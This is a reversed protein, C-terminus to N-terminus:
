LSEIINNFQQGRAKYDTFMDMSACAPSFLVVDGQQSAEIGAKIIRTFDDGQVNEVSVLGAIKLADYIKKGTQGYTIIKKIKRTKLENALVTFDANKDYGGFYAVLPADFSKIAAIASTPNTSFSDNYYKVGSKDAIFEIHYPLGKFSKIAESILDLDQTFDWVACIAASINQLNHPGPLGVESVKIVEQGFAVISDDGFSVDADSGYSYKTNAPSVLALQASVPDDAFFVAVDQSSQFKFINSKASQYEALDKHWDLHDETVMLCVAVQPSKKIDFLQFSSMEYVVIHDAQINPLEDLAPSGINGLLHTKYGALSLIEYILTSTTGKGKTGTVGIVRAPCKTIFENTVTTIPTNISDFDLRLGPSRVLLDYGYSDLSIFADDGLVGKTGNPLKVETNNDHITIENAPSNWYRFASEGERGFGLIAIKM